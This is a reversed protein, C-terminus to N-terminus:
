NNEHDTKKHVELSIGEGKQPEEPCFRVSMRMKVRDMMSIPSNIMIMVKEDRESTLELITQRRINEM